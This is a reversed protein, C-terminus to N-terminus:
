DTKGNSEIICADGDSDDDGGYINGYRSYKSHGLTGPVISHKKYSM